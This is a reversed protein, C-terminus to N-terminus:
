GPCPQPPAPAPQAAPLGAPARAPSPRPPAPAPGTHPTGVARGLRAGCAPGTCAPDWNDVPLWRRRVRGAVTVAHTWSAMVVGVQVVGLTGAADGLFLEIRSAGRTLYELRWPVQRDHGAPVLPKNKGQWGTLRQDPAAPYQSIREDRARVKAQLDAGRSDPGDRDSRRPRM